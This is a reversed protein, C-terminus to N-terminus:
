KSPSAPPATQLPPPQANSGPVAESKGDPTDDFLKDDEISVSEAGELVYDDDETEGLRLTCGKPCVSSLVGNPKLVHDQKTDGELIIFKHDKDDRNTVTVALAPLPVSLAAIFFFGTTFRM